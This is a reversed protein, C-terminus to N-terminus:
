FIYIENITQASYIFKFSQRAQNEFPLRKAIDQTKCILTGGFVREMIPRFRPEFEILEIAPWVNDNGAIRRAAAARQVAVSTSQIKNLPLYTRRVSSSRILAKATEESDVVVNFLSGGAVTELALGFEPRRM